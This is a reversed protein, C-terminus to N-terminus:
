AAHLYVRFTSGRGEESDVELRGGAQEVLRQVLYLGVGSGPVHDHFRRFLQFM